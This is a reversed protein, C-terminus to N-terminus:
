ENTKIKSLLEIALNKIEINETNESLSELTATAQFVEGISVFIEAILLYSKGVWYEFTPFNENLSYLTELAQTNQGDEYFITALIYNAEAASEDKVLNITNLLMDIGASKNNSDLYSKASLLNIKNRNIFSIKDFNNIQNSYYIVSDYNKLYYYNSLIGIFAEIKERNNKSNLELDKYFELSKEHNNSKLNILAVRNLSRSYYKSNLSDLLEFYVDEAKNYINLKFYSEALYYNIEYRNILEDSSNELQSVQDILESYKQNFYLNRINEYQIKQINNEPFREKYEKILTNVLSYNDSFSVIKQMGLLAESQINEDNINRLIYLYDNEAQDYSRLNFYSTARNLYSYPLYNSFNYKEIIESYNIISKDFESNEFYIQAKRFIADDNFSNEENLIVKDLYEISKEFNNIGYYSLGIQYNLYNVNSPTKELLAKYTNISQNFNKSAYYSDALRLYPDHSTTKNDYKNVLDIHKKFHKSALEYENLNYFSYGLSLHTKIDIEIPLNKNKIIKLLENKSDKYNNAIFYAESKNLLSKLYIKDNIRYRNSLNFYNISNKFNGKNFESVGRQYTIFQFKEKDSDSIDDLSSLYKIIRNYNNTLFYNESILRNVENSKFNPFESKLKELTAISLDYDGLEYNCKSYNLLANQTFSIDTDNRYSAYFYNKALNINKEKLFIMGLYFSSQQSYLNKKESLEKFILKSDEFQNLKYKSYGISYKIEDERDIKSKIKQFNEIAKDYNMLNLHSKGIYFYCYDINSIDSNLMGELSIAENYNKNIYYISIKYQLSKLSYSYDNIKEFYSISKSFDNEYYEIVGLIFNRDNNYNENILLLYEKASVYDRLNFYSLGIMYNIEDNGDIQSFYNIASSYREENYEYKGYEYKLFSKFNNNNNNIYDEALKRFTILDPNSKTQENKFNSKLKSVIYYAVIEDEVDIFYENDFYKEYYDVYLKYNGDNYYRILNNENQGLSYFSLLVGLILLVTRM